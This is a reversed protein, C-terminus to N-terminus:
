SRRGGRGRRGIGWGSVVACSKGDYTVAVHTWQNAKVEGGKAERCPACTAWIAYFEVTTGNIRLAHTGLDAAWDYQEMISKTGEVNDIKVWAMLTIRKPTLTHDPDPIEIHGTEGDFRVASGFEGENEWKVGGIFEGDHKYNPSEVTNGKGEDFLWVGVAKASAIKTSVVCMVLVVLLLIFRQVLRTM